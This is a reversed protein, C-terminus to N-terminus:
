LAKVTKLPECLPYSAPLVAAEGLCGSSPMTVGLVAVTGLVSDGKCYNLRLAASLWAQGRLRRWHLGLRPIVHPPSPSGEAQEVGVSTLSPGRRPEGAM